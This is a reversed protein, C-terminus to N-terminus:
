TLIMPFELRIKNEANVPNICSNYALEKLEKSIVIEKNENDIFEIGLINYKKNEIVEYEGIKLFVKMTIKKTNQYHKLTENLTLLFSNINVKIEPISTDYIETIQTDSSLITNKAIELLSYINVFEINEKKIVKKAVEVQKYLEIGLFDDNIYGVLIAYYRNQNYKLNIFKYEFGFSYPANDLAIQYLEKPNVSNFLYEAEKNFEELNGNKNFLIFPNLSNMMMQKYFNDKYM